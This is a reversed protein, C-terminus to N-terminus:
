QAPLKVTVAARARDTVTVETAVDALAAFSPWRPRVQYPTPLMAAVLYHGPRVAISFRGDGAQTKTTTSAWDTWLARDASFRAVWAGPVPHGNADVVTGEIRAPHQTFVVELRGGPHASFDTPTDTIDVGDLLVQWPWWRDGNLRYGVRLVRPGFANELIFEGHAAGRSGTVGVPYAADDVVLQTVVHISSPWKAATTDSQMVYRGRLSYRSTRVVVGPLDRGNVRVMTLGHEIGADADRAFPSPGAVLFYTGDALAPAQFSGDLAPTLPPGCGVSGSGQAACVSMTIGAPLAGRVSQIRGSVLHSPAVAQSGFVVAGVIVLLRSEMRGELRVDRAGALLFCVLGIAIRIRPPMVIRAISAGSALEDNTIRFTDPGRSKLFAVLEQGVDYPDPSGSRQNQLIFRRPVGAV